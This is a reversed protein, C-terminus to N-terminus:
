SRWASPASNRPCARGNPRTPADVYAKNEAASFTVKTVHGKLSAWDKAELGDYYKVMGPEYAVSIDTITKRVDAPLKKWKDLNMIAGMNSNGFFPLDVVYKAKKVWGRKLVGATPWGFGDVVGRELATYVAPSNMTVPVMGLKQMM